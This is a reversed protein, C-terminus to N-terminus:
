NSWNNMNNYYVNSRQGDVQLLLEMLARGVVGDILLLQGAAVVVTPDEEVVAVGRVGFGVEKAGGGEQLREYGGIVRCGPLGAVGIWQLVEGAYVVIEADDRQLLLVGYFGSAEEVLGDEVQLGQLM